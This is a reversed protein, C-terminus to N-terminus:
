GRLYTPQLMRSVKERSRKFVSSMRYVPLFRTSSGCARQQCRTRLSPQPLARSSSCIVATAAFSTQSYRCDLRSCSVMEVEPLNRNCAKMYEQPSLFTASNHRPQKHIKLASVRDRSFGNGTRLAIRVSSSNGRATAPKRNVTLVDSGHNSAGGGGTLERTNRTSLTTGHM